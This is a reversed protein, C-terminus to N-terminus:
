VGNYVIIHNRITIDNHNYNIETDNSKMKITDHLQFFDYWIAVLTQLLFLAVVKPSRGSQTHTVQISSNINRISSNINQISSNINQISSNTDLYATYDFTSGRFWHWKTLILTKIWSNKKRIQYYTQETWQHEAYVSAGGHSIDTNHHTVKYTFSSTKMLVMMKIVYHEFGMDSHQHAHLM